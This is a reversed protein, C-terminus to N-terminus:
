RGAVDPGTTAHVLNSPEGYYYARVRLTAKRDPPAFAWGFSNVGPPVVARVKFESSGAPRVEVLTGEADSARDTWTLKFGSVTVPMLTIKFNAPGAEAATAHRQPVSEKGLRRRTPCPKPAPGFPLKEPLAFAKAYATDSLEKPLSIEVEPSAPGYYARVRYYCTTEPMLDPHKYRTQSPALFEWRSLDM